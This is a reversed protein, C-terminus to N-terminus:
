PRAGAAADTTPADGISVNPFLEAQVLQTGQRQEVIRVADMVQVLLDYPIEPELLLTADTKEPYKLKVRQLYESLAAINYKGANDANSLTQLPGTARDAVVLSDKLLLIELELGPPPEVFEASNTPLKLELIVTRSFVATMLLFTVLVTFIDIMPVLLLEAPKRHHRAMRRTKYNRRM